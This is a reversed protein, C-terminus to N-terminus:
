KEELVRPELNQSAVAHLSFKKLAQYIPPRDSQLRSELLLFSSIEWKLAPAPPLAFDKLRAGSRVRGVTLHPTFPRNEDPYGLDLLIANIALSLQTLRRGPDELGVWLVKPKRVSPFVGTGAVQVPIGGAPPHLQPHTLHRQSELEWAAQFRSLFQQDIDGLFRLTLHYNQVPVWAIPLPMKRIENLTSYLAERIPKPLEIALFARM